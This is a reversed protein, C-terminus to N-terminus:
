FCINAKKKTWWKHKSRVKEGEQTHKNTVTKFESKIYDKKRNKLGDKEM